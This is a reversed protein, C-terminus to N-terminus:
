GSLPNSEGSFKRGDASGPGSTPWEAGYDLLVRVLLREARDDQLV